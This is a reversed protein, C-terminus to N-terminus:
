YTLVPQGGGGQGGGSCSVTLEYEGDFKGVNDVSSNGPGTLNTCSFEGWGHVSVTIELDGYQANTTGTACPKGKPKLLTLGQNSLTCHSASTNAIKLSTVPPLADTSEAFNSLYANTVDVTATINNPDSVNLSADIGGMTIGEGFYGSDTLGYSFSANVTFKSQAGNFSFNPQVQPHTQPFAVDLQNTAWYTQGLGNYVFALYNAALGSANTVTSTIWTKGDGPTHNPVDISKEASANVTQQCSDVVILQLLRTGTYNVYQKQIGSACPFLQTSKIGNIVGNNLVGDGNADLICYYPATGGVAGSVASSTDISIVNEAVQTIGLANMDVGSAHMPIPNACQITIQYMKPSFSNASVDSPTITMSYKGAAMATFSNSGASFNMHTAPPPTPLDIRQFSVAYNYQSAASVQNIQVSYQNGATFVLASASDTGDTYLAQNSGQAFVAVNYQPGSPGQSGQQAPINSNNKVSVEECATLAFTLVVLTAFVNRKM